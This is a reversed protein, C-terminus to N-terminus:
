LKGILEGDPDIPYDGDRNLGQLRIEECSRLTKLKFGDKIKNQNSQIKNQNSQITNQNSQITNQNSQITNQNSQITIQHSQIAPKMEEIDTKMNKLVTESSKPMCEQLIVEILQTKLKEFEEDTLTTLTQQITM